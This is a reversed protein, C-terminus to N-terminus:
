NRTRIWILNCLPVIYDRGHDDTFYVLHTGIDYENTSVHYNDGIQVQYKYEQVPEVKTTERNSPSCAIAISILVIILYKM